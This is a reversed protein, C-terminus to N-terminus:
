WKDQSRAAQRYMIWLLGWGDLGKVLVLLLTSLKISGQWPGKKSSSSYFKTIDAVHAPWHGKCVSWFAWHAIKNWVCNKEFSLIRRAFKMSNWRPKRFFPNWLTSFGQWWDLRGSRSLPQRSDKWLSFCSVTTDSATWAAAWCVRAATRPSWLTEHPVPTIWTHLSCATNGGVRWPHKLAKSGAM